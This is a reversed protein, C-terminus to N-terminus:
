KNSCLNTLIEIIKSIEPRLLAILSIITPIWFQIWSRRKEEEYRKQSQQSEIQERHNKAIQHGLQVADYYSNKNM